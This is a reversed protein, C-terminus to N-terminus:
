NETIEETRRKANQFLNMSYKKSVMFNLMKNKIQFLNISYKKLVM